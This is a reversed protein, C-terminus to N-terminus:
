RENKQGDIGGNANLTRKHRQSVQGLICKLDKIILDMRGIRRATQMKREIQM